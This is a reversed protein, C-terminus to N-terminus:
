RNEEKFDPISYWCVASGMGLEAETRSREGEICVWGKALTLQGLIPNSCEFQVLVTQGIPPPDTKADHRLTIWVGNDEGEAWPLEEIRKPTMDTSEYTALAEYLQRIMQRLADKRVGTLTPANLVLELMMDGMTRIDVADGLYQATKPNVAVTPRTLREM